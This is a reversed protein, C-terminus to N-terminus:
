EFSNLAYLICEKEKKLEILRTKGSLSENNHGIKEILLDTKELEKKLFEKLVADKKELLIKGYTFEANSKVPEFRCEIIFYFKNEEKVMVENTILFGNCLLYKRFDDIESQPSLILQTESNIKDKGNDLIKKILRGGMGCITITDAENEELKDLGDSLRVEIKESLYAEKIHMAARELPKERVDMAIVKLSIGASILYIPLYGHDTGIDAVVGNKKVLSAAAM